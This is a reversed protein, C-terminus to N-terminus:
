INKITNIISEKPKEEATADVKTEESSIIITVDAKEEDIAVTESAGVLERYQEPTYTEFSGDINTVRYVGKHEDFIGNM